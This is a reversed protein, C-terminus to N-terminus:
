QRRSQNIAYVVRVLRHVHLARLVGDFSGGRVTIVACMASIEVHVVPLHESVAAQDLRARSLSALTVNSGERSRLAAASRASRRRARQPTAASIAHDPSPTRAPPRVAVISQSGPGCQNTLVQSLPDVPATYVAKGSGDRLTVSVPNRTILAYILEGSVGFAKPVAASPMRSVRTPTHLWATLGPRLVVGSIVQFLHPTCVGVYTTWWVPSSGIGQDSKPGLPYNACSQGTAGGSSESMCLAVKGLYRIRHLMIVVLGQATKVSALTVRGPPLQQVPASLARVAGLLSAAVVISVAGM